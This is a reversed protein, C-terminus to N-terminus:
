RTKKLYRLGNSSSSTIKLSFLNSFFASMLEGFKHTAIGHTGEM